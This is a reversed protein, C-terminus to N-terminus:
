LAWTHHFNDFVEYINLLMSSATHQLNQTAGSDTRLSKSLTSLADSYHAKARADESGYLRMSSLALICRYVSISPLDGGHFAMRLLTEGFTKSGAETSTFLNIVVADFFSLLTAGDGRTLRTTRSSKPQWTIQYHQLLAHSGGQYQKFFIDTDQYRTNIFHQSGKATTMFGPSDGAVVHRRRDGTQGWSLRSEYGACFRGYRKCNRCASLAKDCGIKRNKCTWCGRKPKTSTM